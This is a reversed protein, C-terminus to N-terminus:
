SKKKWLDEILIFGTDSNALARKGTGKGERSDRGGRRGAYTKVNKFSEATITLRKWHFLFDRFFEFRNNISLFLGSTKLSILPFLSKSLSIKNSSEISWSISFKKINSHNKKKVFPLIEKSLISWFCNYSPIGVCLLHQISMRQTKEDLNLWMGFIMYQLLIYHRLTRIYVHKEIQLWKKFIYLLLQRIFKFHFLLLSKLSLLLRLSLKIGIKWRM